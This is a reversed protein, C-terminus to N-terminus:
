EEIVGLVLLIHQLCYRFSLEDLESIDEFLVELVHSVVGITEDTAEETEM